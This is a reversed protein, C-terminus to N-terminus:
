NGCDCECSSSSGSSDVGEDFGFVHGEAESNAIIRIKMLLHNDGTIAPCLEDVPIINNNLLRGNMLLLQPRM